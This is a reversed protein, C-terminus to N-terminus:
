GTTWYGHYHRRQLPGLNAIKVVTYCKNNQSLRLGLKGHMM